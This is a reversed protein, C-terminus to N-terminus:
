LQLFAPNSLILVCMPVQPVVRGRRMFFLLLSYSTKRCSGFIYLAFRVTHGGIGGLPSSFKDSSFQKILSWGLM